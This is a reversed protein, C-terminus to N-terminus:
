LDLFFKRKPFCNPCEESKIKLLYLYIFANSVACGLRLQIIAHMNQIANSM